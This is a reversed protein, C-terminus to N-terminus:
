PILPKAGSELFCLHGTTNVAQENSGNAKVKQSIRHKKLRALRAVIWETLRIVLAVVHEIGSTIFGFLCDGVQRSIVAWKRRPYQIYGRSRQRTRGRNGATM